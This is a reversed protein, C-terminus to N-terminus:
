AIQGGSCRLYEKISRWGAVGWRGVPCEWGVAKGRPEKFDPLGETCQGFGM